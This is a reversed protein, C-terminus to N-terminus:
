AALESNWDLLYRGRPAAELPERAQFRSSAAYSVLLAQPQVRSTTCRMAVGWAIKELTCPGRPM